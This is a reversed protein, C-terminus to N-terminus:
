VVADSHRSPATTAVIFHRKKSTSFRDPSPKTSPIRQRKCRCPPTSYTSARAQKGILTHHAPGRRRKTKTCHKGEQEGSSLKRNRHTPQAGYARHPYRTHTSMHPLTHCAATSDPAGLNQAYTCLAAAHLTIYAASHSHLKHMADRCSPNQAACSHSRGECLHRFFHQHRSCM